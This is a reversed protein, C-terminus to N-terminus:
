RSLYRDKLWKIPSGEIHEVEITVLVLDNEKLRMSEAIEKPKGDLVKVKKIRIWRGHLGVGKLKM